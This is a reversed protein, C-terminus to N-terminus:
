GSPKSNLGMGNQGIGEVISIEHCESKMFNFGCVYSVSMLGRAINITLLLAFQEHKKLIAWAQSGIFDCESNSLCGPSGILSFQCILGIKGQWLTNNYKLCQGFLRSYSIVFYPLSSFVNRGLNEMITKCISVSNHNLDSYGIISALIQHANDCSWM